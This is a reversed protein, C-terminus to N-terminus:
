DPLLCTLTIGLFGRSDRRNEYRKLLKSSCTNQLKKKPKFLSM